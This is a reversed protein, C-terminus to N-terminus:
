PDSIGQYQSEPKQTQEFREVIAFHSSLDSQIKAQLKAVAEQLKDGKLGNKQLLQRQREVYESLTLAEPVGVPTLSPFRNTPGAGMESPCSAQLLSRALEKDKGDKVIVSTMPIVLEGSHVILLIPGHDIVTPEPSGSDPFPAEPAPKVQARAQGAFLLLVAALPTWSTM